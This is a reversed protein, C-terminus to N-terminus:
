PWELKLIEPRLRGVWERPLRLDISGSVPREREVHGDLFVVNARQQHRFHGNPYNPYSLVGGDGDVYYWEELMPNDPAAPWQFDNIQAADAFLAIRSTDRLTQANVCNTAFPSLSINYGYGYAAGKAKLKFHSSAYNLSPCIEIGLGNVYEYLPGQKPDFAREGEAGDELWGFWYVVGGNTVGVKYPFTQGDHDDWYMQTALGLQRQNSACQIRKAAEKSNSLAPLLLAALIAIIAIVVLLEILTFATSPQPNLTPLRFGLHYPASDEARRPTAQARRASSLWARGQQSIARM